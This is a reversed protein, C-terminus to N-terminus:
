REAAITHSELLTWGRKELEKWARPSYQGSIWVIREPVRLDERQAFRAVRETWAVYDAPLAVVLAGGTTYGVIPGPATVRAIPRVAEHYRALMNVAGAVMRTEDQTKAIAAFSVISDLGNVGQLRQVGRALATLVSLSYQPNKILAQVRADSAGTGAFISRASNILDGPPTDYVTSNTITVASMLTSGPVFISMAAQIGFRGSFAIWAMDTLKKALVPNTTYPDVGVSKALDRREKEYGFADATISGVRQTIADAKASDSQDPASAAAEVSKAGMEVRDFLRTLGGPLGEVTEVPNTVINVASAVPRAIARAAAQTFEATGSMSNLQALGYVERVRIYLMHIGHAQFVGYDSRITFRDLLGSVPVRDNVAFHPGKLVDAPVLDKAHFVPEAEFGSKTQATAAASTGFTMLAALAVSITFKM